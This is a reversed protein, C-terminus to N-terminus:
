DVDGGEMIKRAAAPNISEIRKLTNHLETKMEEINVPTADDRGGSDVRDMWNYRNKMNFAWTAGQWGKSLLNRRAVHHWWAESMTRGMDVVKQFGTNEEYMEMFRAKPLGLASAVEVDSGGESYVSLMKEQLSTEKPKQHELTGVTVM